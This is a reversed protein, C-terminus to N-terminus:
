LVDGFVVVIGGITFNFDINGGLNQSDRQSAIVVTVEVEITYTQGEQLVVPVQGQFSDEMYPIPPTCTDGICTNGTEDLPTAPDMGPITILIVIAYNVPNDPRGTHTYNYFITASTSRPPANPDVIEPDNPDPSVTFESVV